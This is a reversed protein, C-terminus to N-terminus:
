EAQKFRNLWAGWTPGAKISDETAIDGRQLRLTWRCAISIITYSRMNENTKDIM